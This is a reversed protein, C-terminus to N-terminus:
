GPWRRSDAPAQDADAQWHYITVLAGDPLGEPWQRAIVQDATEGANMFAYLRTQAPGSERELKAVRQAIAKM